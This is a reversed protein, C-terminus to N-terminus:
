RQISVRLVKSTNDNTVKILYVGNAINDGLTITKNVGGNEITAVDRYVVKGVLDVVDIKAEKSTAVATLAGRLTFSGSNPNPFCVLTGTIPIVKPTTTPASHRGGDGCSYTTCATSSESVLTNNASTVTGYVNLGYPNPQDIIGPDNYNYITLNITHVGTALHGGYAIPTYSDYYGPINAATETAVLSAGGDVNVNTFYNDNAINLSITVDDGLDGACM